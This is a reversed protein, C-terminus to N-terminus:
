KSASQAPLRVFEKPTAKVKTNQSCSTSAGHALSLFLLFCSLSISKKPSKKGLDLCRMVEDVRKMRLTFHVFAFASPRAHSQCFGYFCFPIRSFDCFFSTNKRKRVTKSREFFFFIGRKELVFSTQKKKLSFFLLSMLQHTQLKGLLYFNMKKPNMFREFSKKEL